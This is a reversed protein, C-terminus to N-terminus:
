ENILSKQLLTIRKLTVTPSQHTINSYPLKLLNQEIAGILSYAWCKWHISEKTSISKRLAISVESWTLHGIIVNLSNQEKTKIWNETQEDLILIFNKWKRTKIGFHEKLAISTEFTKKLNPDGIKVEIHYYSNDQWNIILDARFKGSKETVERFCKKPHIFKFNEKENFFYKCFEGTKSTEILHILWDSWDEERSLRLPRFKEWDSNVPDGGLSKFEKNSQKLLKTYESKIENNFSEFAKLLSNNIPSWDYEKFNNSLEFLTNFVDWSIEKTNKM